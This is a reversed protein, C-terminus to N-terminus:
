MVQDLTCELPEKDDRLRLFVPARLRGDETVEMAAVQVVLNPKVWKAGKTPPQNSFPSETVPQFDRVMQQMAKESFGSGVRGVYVLRGSSYAGM